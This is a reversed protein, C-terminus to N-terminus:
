WLCPFVAFADPLSDSLQGFGPLRKTGLDRFIHLLTGDGGFALVLDVDFEAIPISYKSPFFEKAVRVKVGHKQIVKIARKATKKALDNRFHGALGVSSIKHM